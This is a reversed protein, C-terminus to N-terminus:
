MEAAVETNSKVAILPTNEGGISYYWRGSDGFLNTRGSVSAATHTVIKMTERVVTFLTKLSSYRAPILVNMCATGIELSSAFNAFSYFSVMYGGSNGQSVMRAADSAFDTYELM